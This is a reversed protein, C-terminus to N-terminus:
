RIIHNISLGLVLVRGSSVISLNKWNIRHGFVLKCIIASIMSIKLASDAGKELAPASEQYNKSRLPLIVSFQGIKAGKRAKQHSKQVLVCLKPAPNWLELKEKPTAVHCTRFVPNGQYCCVIQSTGRWELLKSTLFPEWLSFVLSAPLAGFFIRDSTVVTLGAM